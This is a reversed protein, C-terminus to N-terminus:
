ARFYQELQKHLVSQLNIADTM